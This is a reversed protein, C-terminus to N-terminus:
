PQVPLPLSWTRKSDLMVMSSGDSFIKARNALPIQKRTGILDLPSLSM